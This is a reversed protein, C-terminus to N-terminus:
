KIAKLEFELDRIINCLFFAGAGLIAKGIPNRVKIWKWFVTWYHVRAISFRATSYYHMKSGFNTSPDLYNLSTQTFGHHHTPDGGYDISNYFPVIIVVKAGPAAIRHVEELTRITDPLHELVAPMEILDFSSDEFPWPFQTLDCVVDVGPIQAIDVNVFGPKSSIGCGLLLKKMRQEKVQMRKEKM